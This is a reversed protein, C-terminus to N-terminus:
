VTSRTAKDLVSEYSIEDFDTATFEIAIGSLKSRLTDKGWMYLMREQSTVNEPLWSIFLFKSNVGEGQTYEFNYVAWRYKNEPLDELFTDHGIAESTKGVVIEDKSDNLKYIIYKIIFIM